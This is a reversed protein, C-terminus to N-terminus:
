APELEIVIRVKDGVKWKLGYAQLMGPYMSSALEDRLYLAGPTMRSEIVEGALILRDDSVQM